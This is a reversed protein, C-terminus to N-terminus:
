AKKEGRGWFFFSSPYAHARGKKGKGRKDLRRLLPAVTRKAGERGLVGEGSVSPLSLYSVLAGGREQSKKRKEQREYFLSSSSTLHPIEREEKRSREGGQGHGGAL